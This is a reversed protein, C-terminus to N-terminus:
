NLSAVLINIHGKRPTEDLYVSCEDSDYKSSTLNMLVQVALLAKM